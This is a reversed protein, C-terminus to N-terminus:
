IFLLSSLVYALLCSYQKFITREFATRGGLYLYNGNLFQRPTTFSYAQQDGVLNMIYNPYIELRCAQSRCIYSVVVANEATGDASFLRVIKHKVMRTDVPANCRDFVSLVAPLEDGLVTILYQPCSRFIPELSTPLCFPASKPHKCMNSTDSSYRLLEDHINKDHHLIFNGDSTKQKMRALYDIMQRSEIRVDFAQEVIGIIQEIRNPLSSALTEDIERAFDMLALSVSPNKFIESLDSAPDTSSTSRAADIDNNIM